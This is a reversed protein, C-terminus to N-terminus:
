IDDETSQEAEGGEPPMMEINESGQGQGEETPSVQEQQQTGGNGGGELGPNIDGNGPSTMFSSFIVLVFVITILTWTAKEVVDASQKAGMINTVSSGGMQSSLGGGKPNQVLIVIWLLLCAIIILAILVYLIM